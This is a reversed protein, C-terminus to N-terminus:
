ETICQRKQELVRKNEGDRYYAKIYEDTKQSIKLIIEKSMNMQTANQLINRATELDNNKRVDNNNQMRIGGGWIIDLRVM